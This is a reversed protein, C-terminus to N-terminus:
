EMFDHNFPSLDEQYCHHYFLSFNLPTAESEWTIYNQNGGTGLNFTYVISLYCPPAESDPQGPSGDQGQGWQPAKALIGAEELM